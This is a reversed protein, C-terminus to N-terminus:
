RRNATMDAGKGRGIARLSPSTLAAKASEQLYPIKEVEVCILPPSNWAFAQLNFKSIQDSLSMSLLCKINERLFFIGKIENDIIRALYISFIFREKLNEL